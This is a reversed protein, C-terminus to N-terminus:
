RDKGVPKRKPNPTVRYPPKASEFAAQPDDLDIEPEYTGIDIAREIHPRKGITGQGTIKLAGNPGISNLARLEESNLPPSSITIGAPATIVYNLAWAYVRTGHHEGIIAEESQVLRKLVVHVNALLNSHNEVFAFGSEVLKDRVQTPTLPGLSRRLVNRIADTMGSAQMDEEHQGTLASLAAVVQELQAIAADEIQRNRRREELERRAADLAESFDYRM